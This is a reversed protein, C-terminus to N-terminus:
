PTNARFVINYNVADKGPDRINILIRVPTDPPMSELNQGDGALYEEPTFVSQAVVDNNLNSFTLAIAPFPQEFSARNIIVADVVLQSRNEPNTKVILKRSQISQVDVLPKLECGFIECGQVYLPRLQPIASLRDFQFWVVQSVLGGLLALIVVFWLFGRLRGGGGGSVAVPERRLDHYPTEKPSEYGYVSPEPEDVFFGEYEDEALALPKNERSRPPEDPEDMQPAPSPESRFEPESERESGPQTTPEPEPRPEQEPRAAPTRRSEDDSLMAEAWSEDISDSLEEEDESPYGTGKGPQNISRFSDSLEDDSFTLRTGTYNSEAADEEPNDAFLLDDETSTPEDPPAGSTSSPQSKDPSPPASEDIKHEIANFVSMCNGCRVKGGAVSLQADTVRFRTDCKPCHTQLSSQPM